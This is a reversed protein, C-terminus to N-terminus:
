ADAGEVLNGEEGFEHVISTGDELYEIEKVLEGWENYYSELSLAGESYQRSFVKMGDEYVYEFVTDSVVTGDPEVIYLYTWDGYENYENIFITGSMNATTRVEYYWGDANLAYESTSEYNVTGDVDYTFAKVVNGHEDYENRASTGDDYYANTWVPHNEGEANVAYVTEGVFRGNAFQKEWLKVGNEDYGYDFACDYSVMGNEDYYTSRILDEYENYNSIDASGDDFTWIESRCVTCLIDEMAHAEVDAREGSELVHWHEKADREWEFVPLEEAFAEETEEAGCVAPAMVALAIALFLTLHKKLM